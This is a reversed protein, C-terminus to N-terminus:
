IWNGNLRSSGRTLESTLWSSNPTIDGAGGPSQSQTYSPASALNSSRSLNAWNGASGSRVHGRPVANSSNSGRDASTVGFSNPTQSPGSPTTPTTFDLDVETGNFSHRVNPNTATTRNLRQQNYGVIDLRNTHRGLDPGATLPVPSKITHQEPAYAYASKNQKAVNNLASTDVRLSGTPPRTNFFGGPSPSVDVPTSINNGYANSPSDSKRQIRALLSISSENPDSNSRERGMASVPPPPAGDAGPAIGSVPLETHIFCCRKGYPCAGSVWFTQARCIETKYKPHRAVNRLEDEGHAFQCKAGYRCTGKEEWSRCLETKYLGLKRNNASPGAGNQSGSDSMDLPMGPAPMVGYPGTFQAQLRNVMAQAAAIDYGDPTGYFQNAYMNMAPPPMAPPYIGHGPPGFAQGNLLAMTAADRMASPDSASHQHTARFVNHQQQVRAVAPHNEPHSPMVMDYLQQATALSMHPVHGGPYGIGTPSAMLPATTFGRQPQRYTAGPIAAPPRAQAYHQPTTAGPAPFYGRQAVNYETPQVDAHSPQSAQTSRYDYQQQGRSFAGANALSPYTPQDPSFPKDSAGIMDRYHSSSWQHPNTQQLASRPEDGAQQLRRLDAASLGGSFSHPREKAEAGTAIKLQPPARMTHSNSSLGSGHSDTSSVRSHSPSIQHDSNQPSSDISAESATELPSSESYQAVAAATIKSQPPTRMQGIDDALDGVAGIKLRAIDQALDWESSPAESDVLQGTQNFRWRHGNNTVGMSRDVHHGSNETGYGNSDAHNTRAPM